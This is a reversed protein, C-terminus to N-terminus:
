MMGSLRTDKRDHTSPLRQDTSHLLDAHQRTNKIRTTLNRGMEGVYFDRCICNIKYIVVAREEPPTPDKVRTLDQRHHRSNQVCNQHQVWKLIRRIEKSLGKIYSIKTISLTKEVDESVERPKLARCKSLFGIPYDSNLVLTCPWGGIYGSVLLAM